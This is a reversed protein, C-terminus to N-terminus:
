GPDDQDQIRSLSREEHLELILLVPEILLENPNPPCLAVSMTFSNTPYYKHKEVSV